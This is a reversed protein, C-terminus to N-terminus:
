CATRRDRTRTMSPSSGLMEQGLKDPRRKAEGSFSPMNRLTGMVGERHTQSKRRRVV